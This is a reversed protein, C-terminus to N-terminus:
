ELRIGRKEIIEKANRYDQQLRDTVEKSNLPWITIGRDNFSKVIKPDQLTKRLGDALAQIRAPPTGKPVALANWTFMDFGPFKDALRPVNPLVAPRGVTTVALIKLKGSKVHQFVSAVDLLAFDLHGGLLAVAAPGSGAFPVHVFKVGMLEGLREGALQAQSGPGWTGYSLSSGKDKLWALTEDLNSAPVESRVVIAISQYTTGIIFDFDTYKYPINSLLLENTTLQDNIVGITYGDPAATHLIQSGIVTGGGPKNDVLPQHGNLFGAAVPAMERIVADTPGGATYPVIIRIQREPFDAAHAGAVVLSAAFISAIGRALSRGISKTVFNM